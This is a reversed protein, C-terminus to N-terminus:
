ATRWTRACPGSGPPRRVADALVGLGVTECNTGCTCASDCPAPGDGQDTEAPRNGPSLSTLFSIAPQPLGRVPRGVGDTPRSFRGGALASVPAKSTITRCTLGSHPLTPAVAS